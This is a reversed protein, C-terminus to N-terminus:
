ESVTADDFLAIAGHSFKMGKVNAPDYAAVRESSLVQAFPFEENWVEQLSAMAAQRDEMDTAERLEDLGAAWADSQYGVRSLAPEAQGTLTQLTAWPQADDLSMAFSMIDYDGVYFSQTILDGITNSSDVEVDFGVAELLGEVALAFDVRGTDVDFKLKGDYGDAMAEDLLQKAHEPDYAPGELGSSHLPSGEGVLASTAIADGGAARENILDVDLAEVIAQRVRVDEGPRDVGGTGHNILVVDNGWNYASGMELGAEKLDAVSGAEHFVGVDLQGTTLADERAAPDAIVPFKITDICFKGEVDLEDGWYSERRTVVLEEGPKYASLEYPGAGVVGKGGAYAEAGAADFAAPSILMGPAGAFLIPFDGRPASLHFVLETPSVETMKDIPLLQPKWLSASDEARHHEVNWVVAASDVPDGSAFTIGERLRLTWETFDANPEFSEAMRPVYTDSEPDFRMISDYIAARETGGAVGNTGGSATDFGAMETAVGYQIESPASSCETSTAGTNDNDSSSAGFGCGTAVLGFATLASALAFKSRAM